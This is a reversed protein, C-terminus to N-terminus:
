SMYVSCLRQLRAINTYAASTIISIQLFYQRAVIINIAKQNWKLVFEIERRATHNRNYHLSSAVGCECSYRLHFEVWRFRRSREDANINQSELRDVILINFREKRIYCYKYLVTPNIKRGSFILFLFIQGSLIIVTQKLNWEVSYM